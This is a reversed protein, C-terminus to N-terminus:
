AEEVAEADAMGSAEEYMPKPDHSLFEKAKATLTYNERPTPDPSTGFYGKDEAADMDRQVRDGGLVTGEEQAQGDHKQPTAERPQQKKGTSQAEKSSM